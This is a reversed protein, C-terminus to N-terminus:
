RLYAGSTSAAAAAAASIAAIDSGSPLPLLVRKWDPLFHTDLMICLPSLPSLPSLAALFSALFSALSAFFPEFFDLRPELPFATSEILGGLSWDPGSRSMFPSIPSRSRPVSDCDAELEAMPDGINDSGAEGVSKFVSGLMNARSPPKSMTEDDSGGSSVTATTAAISRGAYAGGTVGADGGGGVAGVRVLFFFLDPPPPSLGSSGGASEGPIIRVCSSSSNSCSHAESPM